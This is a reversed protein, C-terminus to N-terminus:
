LLGWGRFLLVAMVVTFVIAVVLAGGVGFLESSLWSLFRILLSDEYPKPEYKDVGFADPEYDGFEFDDMTGIWSLAEVM